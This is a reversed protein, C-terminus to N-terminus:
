PRGMPMGMPMSMKQWGSPPTFVDNAVAKRDVKTAEFLPEPDGERQVRLPFGGQVQQQWGSAMAGRGMGGGGRGAFTIGKAICMDYKSGDGATTTAHECSLGAITETRGTWAFKGAADNPAAAALSDPIDREMYMQRAPMLVYGKHAARDVITAMAMGNGMSMDMRLKEGKISYSSTAPGMPTNIRADIVGEFPKQAFAPGAVATASAAVLLSRRVWSSHM